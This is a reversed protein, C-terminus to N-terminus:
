FADKPRRCPAVRLITTLCAKHRRRRGQGSKYVGFPSCTRFAANLAWEPVANLAWEPIHSGGAIQAAEIPSRMGARCEADPPHLASRIRQPLAASLRKVLREVAAAIFSKFLPHPEFPRSKLEPHYQVGIFWPHDDREVIEPLVGDPSMGSFRLGAAELHRRLYTIRFQDDLLAPGTSFPDSCGNETILVRPNGYEDRVRALLQWLGSPDVHRGFADLEVGTPPAGPAIHAESMLDFRLYAPSYFNVGLFDLPQRIIEMDGAQVSPPAQGRAQSSKVPPAKVSPGIFSEILDVASEGRVVRELAGPKFISFVKIPLKQDRCLAFATADLVQLNKVIAEDFSIERYRKASPDKKPDASYVGDVKTAKLLM